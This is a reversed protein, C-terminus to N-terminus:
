SCWSPAPNGGWCAAADWNFQCRPLGFRSPNLDFDFSTDMYNAPMWGWTHTKDGITKYWTYNGGSHKEGESWCQFWSFRSFMHDINYSTPQSWSPKDQLPANYQNGCWLVGGSVSCNSAQAEGSLTALALAVV